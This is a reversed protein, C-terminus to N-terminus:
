LGIVKKEFYALAVDRGVGLLGDRLRELKTRTESDSAKAIEDDIEAVLEDLAQQAPSTPWGALLQLAATTPRVLRPGDASEFEVELYGGNALERVVSERTALETGDGFLALLDVGMAPAGAALYEEYIQQLVPRAAKWHLDFAKDSRETMSEGGRWARRGADTIAFQRQKGDRRTVRVWGRDELEDVEIESPVYGAEHWGPHGTFTRDGGGTYILVFVNPESAVEDATILSGLIEYASAM